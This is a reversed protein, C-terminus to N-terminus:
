GAYEAPAPSSGASAKTVEVTAFSLDAGVNSAVIEVVTRKGGDTEFSRQILKGTVVTRTGKKLSGAM